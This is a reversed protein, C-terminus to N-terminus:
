GNKDNKHCIDCGQINVVELCFGEESGRFHSTRRFFYESKDLRACMVNYSCLRQRKLHINTRKKNNGM